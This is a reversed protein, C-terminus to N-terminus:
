KSHGVGVQASAARPGRATHAPQREAAERTRRVAVLVQLLLCVSAPHVCHACLRGEPRSSSSLSPDRDADSPLDVMWTCTSRQMIYYGSVIVVFDIINFLSSRLYSGKELFMGLAVIKVVAEICFVALFYYETGEKVCLALMARKYCRLYALYRKM